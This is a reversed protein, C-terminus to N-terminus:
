EQNALEVLADEHTRRTNRRFGRSNSQQSNQNQQQRPVQQSRNKQQPRQTRPAPQQETVVPAEAVVLPESREGRQKQPQKARPLPKQGVPKANEKLLTGQAKKQKQQGGGVLRAFMMKGAATQLGRIFEVEVIQGIHSNAHEVVVMTGDELHGIAQHHDNGKQTLELKMKEGPLYAMRLTKALDNVNLVGIGEVQAVKNLNFDITCIVGKYEKALKLLRNDVGEEAKTSDSFIQTDVSSMAQLESVVDLGHRARSRKETDANDALYQLEGVVSRPIFLTSTIFGSGAISLIRGDILVSTDVFIPTQRNKSHKVKNNRTVILYSTGAAILLLMGLIIYDMIEKSKYTISSRVECM